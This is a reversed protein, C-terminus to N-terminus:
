FQASAAVSNRNKKSKSKQANRSAHALAGRRVANQRQATVRRQVHATRQSSAPGPAESWQVSADDDSGGGDKSEAGSSSEQRDSLRLDALHAAEAATAAAAVTGAHSGPPTDGPRSHAVDEAESDSSEAGWPEEAAVPSEQAKNAPEDSAETIVDEDESDTEAHLIFRDM